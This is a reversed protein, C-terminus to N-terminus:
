STCLHQHWWEDAGQDEFFFSHGSLNMNKMPLATQAWQPEALRPPEEEEDSSEEDVDDEMDEPPQWTEELKLGKRTGSGSLLPSPCSEPADYLGLGILETSKKRFLSQHRGSLTLDNAVPGQQVPLINSRSPNEDYQSTLAAPQYQHPPYWPTPQYYPTSYLPAQTTGSVMGHMYSSWAEDVQQQPPIHDNPIPLLALQPYGSSELYTNETSPTILSTPTQQSRLPSRRPQFTSPGHCQSSSHWSVPRVTSGSIHTQGNTENTDLGFMSRYHDDLTAYQKVASVTRRRALGNPSSHQSRPKEIRASRRKPTSATSIRSSRRSLKSSEMQNAVQQILDEQDRDAQTSM